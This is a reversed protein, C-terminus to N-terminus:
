LGTCSWALRKIAWWPPRVRRSIASSLAGMASTWRVRPRKVPDGVPLLTLLLEIDARLQLQNEKVTM